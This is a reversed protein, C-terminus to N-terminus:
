LSWGVRVLYYYLALKPVRMALMLVFPGRPVRYLGALYCLVSFAIPTLSALLVSRYPYRQGLLHGVRGSSRELWRSLRQIDRLQTAVLYGASGGAVSGLCTVALIALPPANAATALLMYFQPPIPFHFGDAMFTGLAVGALGFRDVFSGGISELEPRFSRVLLVVVLLLLALGLAFRAILFARSRRSSAAPPAAESEDKM